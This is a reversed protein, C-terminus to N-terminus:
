ETPNFNGYSPGRQILINNIGCSFTLHNLYWRLNGNDMSELHRNLSSIMDLRWKGWFDRLFQCLAPLVSFTQFRQKYNPTRQQSFDPAPSSSTGFPALFPTWPGLCVTVTWSWCIRQQTFKSKGLQTLSTKNSTATAFGKPKEWCVRLSLWLFPLPHHQQSLQWSLSVKLNRSVLPWTFPIKGKYVCVWVHVWM